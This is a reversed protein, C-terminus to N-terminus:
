LPVQRWDVRILTRGQSLPDPCFRTTIGYAALNSADGADTGGRAILLSYAQDKPICTPDQGDLVNVMGPTTTGNPDKDFAPVIEGSYGLEGHASTQLHDANSSTTNVLAAGSSLYGLNVGSLVRRDQGQGVAPALNDSFTFYAGETNAASDGAKPGAGTVADIAMQWSTGGTEVQTTANYCTHNPDVGHPLTTATQKFDYIRTTVFVTRTLVQPKSVVRESSKINDQSTVVGPDLYLRWARHQTEDFPNTSLFRYQGGGAAEVTMTQDLITNANSALTVPNDVSVDDHIGMIIQRDISTRDTQYIDSGTGFIVVFKDDDNKHRRHVAPAATIPQNANGAYIKRVKAQWTSPDGRLDFRYLDGNTDGAYAFDVMGDKNSDLLTPSSLAGANGGTHLSKILQGPTNGNSVSPSSADIDHGFEQGMMDYVYLTPSTDYPIASDGTAHGNAIFAYLHVGTDVRPYGNPKTMTSMQGVVGTSITYGLANNASKETEWLPVEKDWDAPSADLGTLDNANTSTTSTRKKGAITLAYAGRGGQGMTGLLIDQQNRGGTKPTRVWSLGGNNLYVHPNTTDNKGYNAEATVRVTKGVTLAAPDSPPLASQRQMGAPLYNLALSYPPPPNPGTTNGAATFIYVMGDNAATVVYKQKKNTDSVRGLAVVPTGLVDAMQREPDNAAAARVRYESVTRQAAPIAQGQAVIAADTVNNARILWPVFAQTFEQNNSIGFDVKRTAPTANDLWYISNTAGLGNNVLVRRGAYGADKVTNGLTGGSFDAFRLHSSWKGTDLTLTAALEAITSGTSSPTSASYTNSAANAQNAESIQRLIEDFANGVDAATAVPFWCKDLKNAESTSNECTAADVLYGRGSTSLGQRFGIVFTEISQKDFQTNRMIPDPDNNNYDWYGGEADRDQSNNPDQKRLDAAALVHSFRAIGNTLGNIYTFYRGGGSHDYQGRQTWFEGTFVGGDGRNDVPNSFTGFLATEWSQFPPLGATSSDSGRNADGDSLVVVYNKQCRYQIGQRVVRVAQFYRYTTPTWGWERLRNVMPQLQAATMFPHTAGAQPPNNETGWLSLINWRMQDQYTNLINTLAGRVVAIRSLGGSGPVQAAMSGSDDVFFLVNPKVGPIGSNTASQELHLPRNAFPTESLDTVTQAYATQCVLGVASAILLPRPIHRRAPHNKM